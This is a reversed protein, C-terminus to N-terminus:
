TANNRAQVTVRSLRPVTPFQSYQVVYVRSSSKGHMTIRRVVACEPVSFITGNEFPISAFLYYAAFDPKPAHPDPAGARPDSRIARTEANKLLKSGSGVTTVVSVLWLRSTIDARVAICCWIALALRLGDRLRQVCRRVRCWDAIRCWALTLVQWRKACVFLM